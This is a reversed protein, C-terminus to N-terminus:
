RRWAPMAWRSEVEVFRPNQAKFRAPQINFDAFGKHRKFCLVDNSVVLTLFVGVPIGAAFSFSAIVVILTQVASGM